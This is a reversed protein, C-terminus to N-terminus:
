ELVDQGSFSSRPLPVYNDYFVRRLEGQPEFIITGDVNVQKGELNVGRVASAMTFRVQGESPSAAYPRDTFEFAGGGVVDVRYSVRPMPLAEDNPNTVLLDFLIRGGGPSNDDLRISTVEVDPREIGICGTFLLPLIVICVIRKMAANYPLGGTM